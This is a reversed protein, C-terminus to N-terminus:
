ESGSDRFHGYPDPDMFTFNSFYFFEVKEFFTQFHWIFSYFIYFIFLIRVITTTQQNYKKKSGTNYTAAIKLKIESSKVEQIRIQEHPDPDADM